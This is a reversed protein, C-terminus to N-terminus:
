PTPAAVLEVKLWEPGTQIMRRMARRGGGMRGPRMGRGMERGMGEGMEGMGGGPEMGEGMEGGRDMGGGFRVHGSGGGAKERMAKRESYSMGGIEVGIRLTQTEGGTLEAVKGGILRLPILLEYGFVGDHVASGARPGHENTEYLVEMKDGNFVTLTGPQQLRAPGQRQMGDPRREGAPMDDPPAGRAPEDNEDGAPQEVRKRSAATEKRLAAALEESGAYRIGFSEKRKGDGNLWVTVGRAMIRRALRRDSFRWMLYLNDHDHAISLYHVSKGLYTLPLGKWENTDGDITITRSAPLPEVTLEALVPRAQGLMLLFVVASAIRLWPVLDDRSMSVNVEM